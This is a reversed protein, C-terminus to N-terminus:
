LLHSSRRAIGAPYALPGRDASPGVLLRADARGLYVVECDILEGSPTAALARRCPPPQDKRAVAGLAAMLQRRPWVCDRKVAFTVGRGSAFGLLGGEYLSHRDTLVPNLNQGRLSNRDRGPTPQCTTKASPLASPRWRHGRRPRDPRPGKVMAAAERPETRGTAPQLRSLTRQM